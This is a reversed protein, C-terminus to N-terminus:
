GKHPVAKGESHNPVMISRYGSSASSRCPHCFDSDVRRNCKQCTFLTEVKLSFGHMHADAAESIEEPRVHPMCAGPTPCDAHPPHPGRWNGSSLTSYILYAAVTEAAKSRWEKAAKEKWSDFDEGLLHLLELPEDRMIKTEDPLQFFACERRMEQMSINHPICISGYRYWDVIYRFREKDAEIFISKSSSDRQEPDDLLTCLLTDPKAGLDSLQLCPSRLDCFPMQLFQQGAPESLCEFCALKQESGRQETGRSPLM